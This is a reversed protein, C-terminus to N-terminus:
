AKRPEIHAETVHEPLLHTVCNALRLVAQGSSFVDLISISANYVELLVAERPNRNGLLAILVRIINGHCVVLIRQGPRHRHRLRNVFRMIGDREEELASQIHEGDRAPLPSFHFRSVEQLDDTIDCHTSDHHRLIPKATDRARRLSSVYAYDFHDRALRKGLRRAQVAGLPTLGPDPDHMLGPDAQGHRVLVVTLPHHLRKTKPIAM